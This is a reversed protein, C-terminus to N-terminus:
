GHLRLSKQGRLEIKRVLSLLQECVDMAVQGDSSSAAIQKHMWDNRVKRVISLKEYLDYDIYNALSLTESIVAATFTRSDNLKKKRDKSLFVKDDRLTNEEQYRTWLEQLLKETIAWNIILSFSYNHEQYSKSARVFLDALLIGDLGTTNILINLDSATKEAVSLDVPMGRMSIRDDFTPHLLDQYTSPYSSLALRSVHTNGFGMDDKDLSNMSIILEPTIVMCDRGYNKMVIENTYLFALYANMVNTRRLVTEAQIKFENIGAEEVKFMGLEWDTFGFSFLGERSVKIEIGCSLKQRFIVDRFSGFNVPEEVGYNIPSSGIWLPPDHYFGSAERQM